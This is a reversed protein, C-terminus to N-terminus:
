FRSLVSVRERCNSVNQTYCRVEDQDHGELEGVEAALTMKLCHSMLTKVIVGGSRPIHWFYPTDRGGPVYPTKVSAFAKYKSPLTDTPDEKIPDIDNLKDVAQQKQQQSPPDYDPPQMLAAKQDDHENPPIIPHLEQNAAASHQQQPIIRDNTIGATDRKSFIAMDDISDQVQEESHGGLQDLFNNNNSIGQQKSNGGRLNSMFDHSEENEDENNGLVSEDRERRMMAAHRLEHGDGTGDDYNGGNDFRDYKHRESKIKKMSSTDHKQVTPIQLVVYVILVTLILTTQNGRKLKKLMDAFTTNDHKKRRNSRFHHRRNNTVHGKNEENYDDDNDTLLSRSAATRVGIDELISDVGSIRSSNAGRSMIASEDKRSNYSASAAAGIGFLGVGNTTSNRTATRQKRQKAYTGMYSEVGNATSVGGGGFLASVDDSSPDFSIERPKTILTDEENGDHHTTTTTPKDRTLLNHLPPDKDQSKRSQQIIEENASTDVDNNQAAANVNPVGDNESAAAPVHDHHSESIRTLEGAVESTTVDKKKYKDLLGSFLSSMASSADDDNDDNENKNHKSAIGSSNDGLLEDFLRDSEPTTTNNKAVATPNSSPGLLDSISNDDSTTSNRPKNRRKTSGQNLRIM